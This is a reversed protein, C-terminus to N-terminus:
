GEPKRSQGDLEFLSRRYTVHLEGVEPLYPHLRSRLWNPITTLALDHRTPLEAPQAARNLETELKELHSLGALAKDLSEEIEVELSYREEAIKRYERRAKELVAQRHLEEAAKLEADAREEERAAALETARLERRLEERRDTLRDLAERAERDLVEVEKEANSQPQRESSM